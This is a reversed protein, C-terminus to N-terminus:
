GAPTIDLFEVATFGHATIGHYHTEGGRKGGKDVNLDQHSSRHSVGAGTKSNWIKWQNESAQYRRGPVKADRYVIGM